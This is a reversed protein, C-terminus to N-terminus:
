EHSKHGMVSHPFLNSAIPLQSNPSPYVRFVSVSYRMPDCRYFNGWVDPTGLCGTGAVTHSTPLTILPVTGTAVVVPVGGELGHASIEGGVSVLTERWGSVGVRLLYEFGSNALSLLM